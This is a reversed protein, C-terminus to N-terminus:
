ILRRLDQAAPFLISKATKGAALKYKKYQKVAFHEPEREELSDFLMDVPSKFNEDDERAESENILDLLM